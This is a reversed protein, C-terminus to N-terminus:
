AIPNSMKMKSGNGSVSALVIDRTLTPVGQSGLLKLDLLRQKNEENFPKCKPDRCMEVLDYFVMPETKMLKEMTIITVIVVSEPVSAGTKLTVMPTTKLQSM